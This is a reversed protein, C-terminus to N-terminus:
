YENDSDYSPLDDADFDGILVPVKSTYIQFLNREFNYFNGMFLTREVKIDGIKVSYAKGDKDFAMQYKCSYKSTGEKADMYLHWYDGDKPSDEDRVGATLIVTPRDGKKEHYDERLHEYFSEVLEAVTFQAPPAAFIAAMTKELEAQVPGMQHKEIQRKVIKCVTENYGEIGIQSLDIGIQSKLGAEIQKGFDGWRGFLNEIAKATAEEVAKELAVQFFGEEAMNKIKAVMVGRFDTEPKKRFFSM